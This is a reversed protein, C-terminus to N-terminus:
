SVQRVCKSRVDKRLHRMFYRNGVAPQRNTV